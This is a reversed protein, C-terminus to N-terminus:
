EFRSQRVFEAGFESLRIKALESNRVDRKNIDEFQSLDIQHPQEEILRLRLLNDFILLSVQYDTFKLKIIEIRELYPRDRDSKFFCRSYIYDLIGVEQPSLQNLIQSFISCIDFRNNPNAANALLAAWRSQMIEDDEFSAFELLNSLDKIKIKRPQIGKSKLYEQAKLIIEVQNKFRWLKVKDTLIGTFEKVPSTLVADLFEFAKEAAQAVANENIITPRDTM